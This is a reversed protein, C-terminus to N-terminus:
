TAQNKILLLNLKWLTGESYYQKIDLGLLSLLKVLNIPKFDSYHNLVNYNNDRMVQILERLIYAINFCNYYELRETITSAKKTVEEPTVVSYPDYCNNFTILTDKIFESKNLILM